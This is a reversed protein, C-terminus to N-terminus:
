NVLAFANRLDRKAVDSLPPSTLFNGKKDQRVLTPGALDSVGPDGKVFVALTRAPLPVTAKEGSVTIVKSGSKLRGQGGLNAEDTTFALKWGSAGQPFPVEVAEQDADSFNTVILVQNAPTFLAKDYQSSAGTNPRGTRHVMLIGADRHQRLLDMRGQYFSDFSMQDRGGQWLAPTAMRLRVSAQYLAQYKPDEQSAVRSMNSQAFAEPGNCGPRGAEFEPKGEKGRGIFVGLAVDPEMFSTFFNLKNDVATDEGQYALPTGPMLQHLVAGLRALEYGRQADGKAHASIGKMVTVMRSRWDNGLIDHNILYNYGSELPREFGGKLGSWIDRCWPGIKGYDGWAMGELLDKWGHWTPSNYQMNAGLGVNAPLTVGAYDRYDEYILNINEKFAHIDKCIEQMAYDPIEQTLDFRIGDAHFNEVWFRVVQKAMDLALPNDWRFSGGLFGNPNFLRGGYNGLYNGEPGFHNLVLDFIVAINNEQCWNVLEQLDRPPGYANESAFYYTGDYGWNWHGAFESLPNFQIATFDFKSGQALKEQKLRKLKELTAKYTGEQTYTGVHIQNVSFRGLHKPQNWFATARSSWNFNMDLVQSPGHVDHPQYVSWPDPMVELDQRGRKRVEVLYRPNEYGPPLAAIHGFFDGPRVRALKASVEPNHQWRARLHDIDAQTLKDLDIKGQDDGIPIRKGQQDKPVFPLFPVQRSTDLVHAQLTDRWANLVWALIHEPERHQALQDPQPRGKAIQTPVTHSWFDQVLDAWGSSKKLRDIENAPVGRKNLWWTYGEAEIYPKLTKLTQARDSAAPPDVVVIDMDEIERDGDQEGPYIFIIGNQSAERVPLAGYTAYFAGFRLAPKPRSASLSVQDMGAAPSPRTKTPVGPQHGFGPRTAHWPMDLGPQLVRM